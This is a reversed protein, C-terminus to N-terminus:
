HLTRVMGNRRRMTGSSTSVSSTEASAAAGACAQHFLSQGYRMRTTASVPGFPAPMVSGIPRVWTSTRSNEPLKSKAETFSPPASRRKM